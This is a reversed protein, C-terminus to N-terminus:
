NEYLSLEGARMAKEDFTNIVPQSGEEQGVSGVPLIVIRGKRVANRKIRVEKMMGKRTKKDACVPGPVAANGGVKEQKGCCSTNMVDMQDLDGVEGPLELRIQIGRPGFFDANWRDLRTALHGAAAAAARLNKKEKGRRMSTGVIAAPVVGLMFGLLLSCGLAVGTGAGITVWWDKSSMKAAQTIESTFDNWDAPSIDYSSLVSPYRFGSTPTRHTTPVQLGRTLPGTHPTPSLPQTATRTYSHPNLSMTQTESILALLGKEDSTNLPVTSPQHSDYAPPLLSEKEATGAIQRANTNDDVIAVTRSNDSAIAAPTSQSLSPLHRQLMAYTILNRNPRPRNSHCRNSRRHGCM